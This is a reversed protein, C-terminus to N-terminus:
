EGKYNMIRWAKRNGTAISGRFEFTYNCRYRKMLLDFIEKLEEDYIVWIVNSKSRNDIVEFKYKQLDILLGGQVYKAAILGSGRRARQKDQNNLDVEPEKEKDLKRQKANVDERTSFPESAILETNESVKRPKRTRKAPKESPELELSIQVSPVVHEKLSPVVPESEKQTTRAKKETKEQKAVRASEESAKKIAVLIRDLQEEKNNWWDLSWIRIIQWGLGNLIATQSIERDRTYKSQAYTKGDLMIGILYRGANENDAVCIDIKFNSHGVFTDCHYGYMALEHVISNVVTEDKRDAESDTNANISVTQNLAFALFNRLAKVGEGRAKSVNIQEPLMSSFVIMEKRARTVAVNLRRWGGDRNLPGFNMSIKGSEDPGFTVSFLIVDREDGQVSELNKIFLPDETRNVWQDLYKDKSCADTLLDDILNQQNINFTVIGVSEDRHKPDRSRKIIEDVIARAEVLNIRKPSREFVGNVKVMRVKSERDNVSPFTYLKNDYFQANSFAILSEHKSRYHWNLYSQPMNIGLGDDLISELDERTINDEDVNNSMFFATPPMQKPDGVIIVNEGRAIAGIAKCTPLQSAEDFIVVDFKKTSPDLYQAASIPSMLLCPCLSQITESASEFIKRITAGRGRSRMLRRLSALQPDQEHEKIYSRIRSSVVYYVEEKTLDQMQKDYTRYQEIKREFLEGSFSNMSECQDIILEALKKYFSKKYVGKIKEHDIGAYYAEIVSHLNHQEAKECNQNWSYWDKMLQTNNQVTELAKAEEIYWYDKGELRVSILAFLTEREKLWEPYIKALNDISERKQSDTCYIKRANATGFLSDIEKIGTYVEQLKERVQLWNTNGPVYLNGFQSIHANLLQQVELSSDQYQKLAFIDQQLEEPTLKGGIFYIGLEKVFKNLEIKRALSNKGQILSYRQLLLNADQSLFIVNWRQLLRQKAGECGLFRNCLNILSTIDQEYHDSNVLEVPFDQLKDLKFLLSANNEYSQPNNQIELGFATSLSDTYLSFTQLSDLYASIANSADSEIGRYYKNVTIEKLPHTNPHGIHKAGLILEDIFYAQDDLKIDTFEEIHEYPIDIEGDYESYTEYKNLVEYLSSGCARYKHLDEVYIDIEKRLREIQKLREQYGTPEKATIEFVHDIKELVDTKKAKNSHLELCFPDLGLEQIRKQVVELAARKEAVFLVKKGQALLDAIMSTITQSKGTGPPGHLVFSEGQEAEKIAYLQSGDVPMTLFSNETKTANEEDVRKSSWTMHGEILSKVIKNKELDESRNHIDNWMVFQSFSFIGLYASELVDWYNQELIANRFITLVQRIDIGHEDEPLMELGPITMDFDQKLKELLTINVQPEDDKRLSIAYGQTASKKKIEAPLLVIPAFHPNTARGEECWKLLGIAVFLSNAGNEELSSKANRYLNKMTANLEGETLTSHIRSSKYEQEIFEKFDGLNSLSSFDDKKESTEWGEPKSYLIFSDGDYLSDEFRDLSSCLIPVVSRSLHLNLLSNRLGLDLLKREWLLKKDFETKKQNKFSYDRIEDPRATEAKTEVRRQIVYGSDTMLRTPIPYVKMLRSCKIDVVLEVPKNDTLEGVAIQRAKNFDIHNGYTFSTAEVVEIDNIGEALRKTVVSVDDSAADPFSNDVLWFGPFVHGQKICLIPNIGVAELCAAYMLSLDLCTGIKNKVIDDCMRIRQGIKGYSAPPESYVIGLAQLANYIAAAQYIVKNKDGTQYGDFATSDTWQSMYEAASSVIATIDPHNPTVFSSLLEPSVSLGVWQDYTLIEFDVLKESLQKGDSDYLKITVVAKQRETLNILYDTDMILKLNEILITQFASISSIKRSYDQILKTNASIQLTLEELNRNTQNSIEIAVIPEIGNQQLSYSIAPLAAVNLKVIENTNSVTTQESTGVGDFTFDAM